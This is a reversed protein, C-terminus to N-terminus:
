IYFIEFALTVQIYMTKEAHIDRDRDERDRERVCVCVIKSGKIM